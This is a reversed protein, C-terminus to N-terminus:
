VKKEGGKFYYKNYGQAGYGYISEGRTRRDLCVNCIDMKEISLYPKCSRGETQDTTFIVQITNEKNCGVDEGCIDCLTEIKKM